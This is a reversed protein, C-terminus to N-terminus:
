FVIGHFLILIFCAFEITNAQRRVKKQVLKQIQLFIRTVHPDPYKTFTVFHGSGLTINPNKDRKLAAPLLNIRLKLLVFEVRALLLHCPHLGNYKFM